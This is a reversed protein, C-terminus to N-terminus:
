PFLHTQRLAETLVMAASIAMNLSRRGGQMPIIVQHPIQQHVEEPVGSSEQGLLLVDSPQFSFDLFSTSAQADLLILRNGKDKQLQYFKEWSSHRTVQALDMYDMGARRLKQDQWVFNCPEIIDLPVGLCAGLRMLTGTNQPIEPQYLAIRM